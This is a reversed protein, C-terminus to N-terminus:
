ASVKWSPVRIAEIDERRFLYAGTPGEGRYAAKIRGSRALRLVTARSVDLMRAAEASNILDMDMLNSLQM